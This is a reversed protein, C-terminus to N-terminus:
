RPQRSNRRAFIRLSRAPIPVETRGNPAARGAIEQGDCAISQWEGPLSLMWQGTGVLGCPDLNIEVTAENGQPQVMVDVRGEPLPMDALGFPQAQDFWALPIGSLFRVTHPDPPPGWMESAFANRIALVVEAAAWGHHGDGMCGGGTLPHIAEPYTFTSTARGSVDMLIQWFAEADGDYLLAQAVQLTLYVNLGSHVFPQYFLGQRFMKESIVNMTARM